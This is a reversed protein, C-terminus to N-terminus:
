GRRLRQRLSQMYEPEIVFLGVAVLANLVSVLGFLWLISFGNSLVLIALGAATVM